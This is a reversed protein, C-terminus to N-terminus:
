SAAGPKALAIGEAPYVAPFRSHAETWAAGVPSLWGTVRLIAAYHKPLNWDIIPEHHAIRNRLERLPRLPTNMGKRTLARGWEDRAGPQLAQHLTARWLPEYGKNLLATWFGFSLAAVIRSPELPRGKEALLEKAKALQEHQHSVTLFGPMDFWSGGHADTLVAHFRNRLAVELMQLPTYFAESMATNLAYLDAARARDGAAWGLYRAFRETSLVAELERGDDKPTEAM